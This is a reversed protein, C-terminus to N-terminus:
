AHTLFPSKIPGERFLRPSSSWPDCPDVRIKKSLCHPHGTWFAVPSVFPFSLFPDSLNAKKSLRVASSKQSAYSQFLDAM